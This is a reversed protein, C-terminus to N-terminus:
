KKYTCNIVQLVCHNCVYGSPIQLKFSVPAGANGNLNPNLILTKGTGFEKLLLNDLCSQTAEGSPMSDVNCLRFEFGGM